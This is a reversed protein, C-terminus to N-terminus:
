SSFKLSILWETHSISEKVSAREELGRLIYISVIITLNREPRVEWSIHLGQIYFAQQSFNVNVIKKDLDCCNEAKNNVTCFSKHSDRYYVTSFNKGPFPSIASSIRNRIQTREIEQHGVLILGRSFSVFTIGLFTPACIFSHILFVQIRLMVRM